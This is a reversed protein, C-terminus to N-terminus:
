TQNGYISSCFAIFIAQAASLVAGLSNLEVPLVFNEKKRQSASSSVSSLQVAKKQSAPAFSSFISELGTVNSALWGLRKELFADVRL